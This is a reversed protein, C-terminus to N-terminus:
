VLIVGFFNSESSFEIIGLVGWARCDTGVQPHHAITQAERDVEMGAMMRYDEDNKVMGYNQQISLGSLDIGPSM